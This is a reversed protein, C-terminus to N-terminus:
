DGFARAAAATRHGALAELDREAQELLEDPHAGELRGDGALEARLSQWLSVKMTVVLTLSELEYLRSLPSYNVIRGNLKLRGLKEGLWLVRRKLGNPRVGYREMLGILAARDRRTTEAIRDLFGALPEEGNKSRVRRILESTAYSLGEHDQLYIKLLKTTAM